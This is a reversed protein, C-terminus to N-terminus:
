NKQYHADLWKKITIGYESQMVQEIKNKKEAKNEICTITFFTRELEHQKEYKMRWKELEIMKKYDATFQFDNMLLFQHASEVSTRHNGDQFPHLVILSVCYALAKQKIDDDFRKMVFDVVLHLDGYHLIHHRDGEDTLELSKKNIFIIVNEDLYHIM